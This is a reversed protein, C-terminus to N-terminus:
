QCKLKTSLGSVKCEGSKCRHGVGLEGVTGCVEGKDLKAKCVNDKLDVGQDCWQGSGCDGDDECVCKKNSNCKGARCELDIQCSQGASKSNPTFCIGSLQVDGPRWESCQNSGCQEDRTCARGDALRSECTNRGIDVFGLNCYRGTGCDVDAMCEHAAACRLASCRGSTCEEGRACADGIAKTEKCQNRGVGAVLGRDCWRGEECDADQECISEGALGKLRFYNTQGDDTMYTYRQSAAREEQCTNLFERDKESTCYDMINVPGDCRDPDYNTDYIVRGNACSNCQGEPKGKPKYEQNCQLSLGVYPEFTHKLGFVHGLEHALVHEDKNSVLTIGKKRGFPTMWHPFHAWGGWCQQQAGTGICLKDTILVTLHGETRTVAVNDLHQDMFRTNAAQSPFVMASLDQGGESTRRVITYKIVLRPRRQYVTEANKVWGAVKDKVQADTLVKSANVFEIDVKWETFRDKDSAPAPLSLAAWVGACTLGRGVFTNMVGGTPLRSNPEFRGGSGPENRDPAISSENVQANRM